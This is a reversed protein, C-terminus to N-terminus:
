IRSFEIVYVWPNNDWSYGRKSNLIDWLTRFCVRGLDPCSKCLDGEDDIIQKLLFSDWKRLGSEEWEKCAEKVCERTPTFTLPKDCIHCSTPVDDEQWDYGGSLFFDEDPREEELRTIESEGCEQCYSFGEDDGSIWYANEDPETYNDYIWRKLWEEIGEGKADEESIDQVREVRVNKVELFIRAAKKPMFISPTWDWAISGRSCGDFIPDEKYIYSGDPVDTFTERVWLHDGVCYPAIGSPAADKDIKQNVLFGKIDTCHKKIVRRTMTKEGTLVARVMPTSFLIPKEHKM